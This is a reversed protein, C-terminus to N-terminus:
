FLPYLKSLRLLSLASILALKGITQPMYQWQRSILWRPITYISAVDSQCGSHFGITDINDHMDIASSRTESLQCRVM